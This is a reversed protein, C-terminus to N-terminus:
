QPRPGEPDPEGFLLIRFCLPCIWGKVIGSIPMPRFLGETSEPVTYRQEVFGAPKVRMVTTADLIKIPALPEHCDPCAKQDHLM